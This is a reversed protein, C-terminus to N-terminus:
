LLLKNGVHKLGFNVTVLTLPRKHTTGCECRSSSCQQGHRNLIVRLDNYVTEECCTNKIIWMCGVYMIGMSFYLGGCAGVMCMCLRRSIESIRIYLYIPSSIFYFLFM